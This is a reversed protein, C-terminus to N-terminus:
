KEGKEKEVSNAVGEAPEVFNNAATLTVLVESPRTLISLEEAVELDLVKFSQGVALKSLDANIFKPVRDAACEVEIEQKQKQLIGNSREVYDTGIFRIPVHTRVKSDQEVPKLDVHIVQNTVPHYQVEKIMARVTEDGLQVNLIANDGHQTLLTDLDKKEIGIMKNATADYVVAPVQGISRTRHASNTGIGKRYYANLTPTEM